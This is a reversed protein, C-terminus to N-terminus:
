ARRKPPRATECVIARGNHSKGNMATCLAEAADRPVNVYCHTNMLEIDGAPVTAGGSSLMESVLDATAGDKRGINVYL